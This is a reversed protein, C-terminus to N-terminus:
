LRSYARLVRFFFFFVGYECVTSITGVAFVGTSVTTYWHVQLLVVAARRLKFRAIAAESSSVGWTLAIFYFFWQM